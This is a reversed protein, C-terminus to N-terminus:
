VPGDAPAYSLQNSRRGTVGSTAPELEPLKEEWLEQSTAGYTPDDVFLLHTLWADVGAVERLWYLHAYRNASQYLSSHGAVQAFRTWGHRWQSRSALGVSPRAWLM